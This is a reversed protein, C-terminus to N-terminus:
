GAIRTDGGAQMEPGRANLRAAQSTVNFWSGPAPAIRRAVQLVIDQRM